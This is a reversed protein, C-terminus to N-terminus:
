KDKYIIRGAKITCMVRGVVAKGEFPSNHGKSLFQSPDINYKSKTDLLVLDGDYGIKIEGKNFGMIKAPNKSMLESLKNLTIHGEGVLKTYCVPFSSELGSIGPAGKIKDEVSHPAHDTAIVDVFGDKIAQILFSVDEVKRMPPNVRYNTEETLALHHPTVECTIRGGQQKGKIIDQMAEKTSVHALHLKCGTFKSLAIDRWTMMNEALRTDVEVLEENEAHSIVTLDKEKAKVMAELMIRSDYVGKGDDSIFRVANTLQGLHDISKGLLDETISACQHIDLLNIERSKKLVKDITDMSSCVPKTNAMLNVATYGGRVAAQSGSLIDEKYTYGPERFHSHLDIFSPALIYGEGNIVECDKELKKGIEYITGKNIYVDGIFDQSSDVVRANKILLEM